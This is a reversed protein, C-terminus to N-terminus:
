EGPPKCANVKPAIGDDIHHYKPKNESRPYVGGCDSGDLKTKGYSDFLQIEYVAHFKVGSNSNKPLLFDFVLECDGFSEKTVFNTTRGNGNVAIPGEGPTGTIKKPDKPDVKVETTFYWASKM